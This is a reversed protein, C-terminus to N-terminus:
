DVIKVFREALCSVLLFRCLWKDGDDKSERMCVDYDAKCKFAPTRPKAPKGLRPPSVVQRELTNVAREFKLRNANLIKFTSESLRSKLIIFNIEDAAFAVPIVGIDTAKASAESLKISASSSAALLDKETAM